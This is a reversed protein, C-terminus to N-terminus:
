ITPRLTIIKPIQANKLLLYRSKTKRERTENMHININAYLRESERERGCVCM